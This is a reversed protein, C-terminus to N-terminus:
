AVVMDVFVSKCRNNDEVYLGVAASSPFHVFKSNVFSAIRSLRRRVKRVWQTDCQKGVESLGSVDREACHVVNKMM